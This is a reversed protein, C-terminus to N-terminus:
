TIYGGGVRIKRTREAVDEDDSYQLRELPYECGLWSSIGGGLSGLSFHTAVSFRRTHEVRNTANAIVFRILVAFFSYDKPFGFTKLTGV